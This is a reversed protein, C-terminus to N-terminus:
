CNGAQPIATEFACNVLVVPVSYALVLVLAHSAGNKTSGSRKQEHRHM